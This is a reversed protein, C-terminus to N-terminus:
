QLKVSFSSDSSLSEESTEEPDDDEDDDDDGYEMLKVLTDPVYDSKTKNMSNKKDHSNTTTPPSSTFKPPPPPPMSRPPLPPMGNSLTQFLKNPAPMNSVNRVDLDTSQESPNPLESGMLTLSFHTPIFTPTIELDLRHGSGWLPPPLRSFMEAM